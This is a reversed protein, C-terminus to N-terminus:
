QRGLWGTIFREAEKRSARRETPASLRFKVFSGRLGTICLISDTPGLQAHDIAVTRCALQRGSTGGLAIPGRDRSSRYLGREVMGAIEGNAKGIEDTVAPSSRGDPIGDLGRDYVYVDAKWRGNTYVVSYGYGPSRAEYDTRPGRVFGAVEAPFAFVAEKAAAPLSLGAIATLLIRPLLRSGAPM